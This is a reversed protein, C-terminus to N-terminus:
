VLRNLHRKRLARVDDLGGANYVEKIGSARLITLAQESRNGNRCYLIIPKSMARFEALRSPITGLPIHVADDAHDLFYELPERVDVLTIDPQNILKKLTMHNAEQTL